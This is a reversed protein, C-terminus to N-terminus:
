YDYILLFGNLFCPNRENKNLDNTTVNTSGLKHASEVCVSM